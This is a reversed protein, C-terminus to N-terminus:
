GAFFLTLSFGPELLAPSQIKLWMPLAWGPAGAIKDGTRKSKLSEGRPGV